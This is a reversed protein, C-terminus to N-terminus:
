LVKGNFKGFVFTFVLKFIKHLGGISALINLITESTIHHEVMDHSLYFESSFYIQLQEEKVITELIDVISGMGPVGSGSSAKHQHHTVNRKPFYAPGNWQGGVIFDM